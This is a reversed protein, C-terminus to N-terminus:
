AISQSEVCHKHSPWSMSLSRVTPEPMRSLVLLPARHIKVAIRVIANRAFLLSGLSRTDGRAFFVAGASVGAVFDRAPEIRLRALGTQQDHGLVRNRRRSQFRETQICRSSFALRVRDVDAGTIAALAPAGDRIGSASQAAHEPLNH